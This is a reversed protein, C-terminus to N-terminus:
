RNEVTVGQRRLQEDALRADLEAYASPPLETILILANKAPDGFGAFAKGVEFGQPPVLGIRSGPPFVPDDARASGITAVLVLLAPCILRFRIM